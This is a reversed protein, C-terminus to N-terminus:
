HDWGSGHGSGGGGGGGAGGGTGRGGRAGAAGGGGGCGGGGGSSGGGGGYGGGSGGSGGGGSGGGPGPDPGGYAGGTGQGGEGGDDNPSPDSDGKQWPPNKKWVQWVGDEHHEQAGDDHGTKNSPGGGSGGGGTLGDGTCSCHLEYCFTAGDPCLDCNSTCKCKKKKPPDKPAHGFVASVFAPSGGSLLMPQASTPDFFAAYIEESQMEAWGRASMKVGNPCILSVREFEEAAPSAQLMYIKKAATLDIILEEDEALAAIQENSVMVMETVNRNADVDVGPALEEAGFCGSLLAAAAMIGVLWAASVCRRCVRIRGNM